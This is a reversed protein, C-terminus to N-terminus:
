FEACGVLRVGPQEGCRRGGQEGECRRYAANRLRDTWGGAAELEIGVCGGTLAAVENVFLGVGRVHEVPEGDDVRDASAEAWGGPGNPGPQRVLLVDSGARIVGIVLLEVSL